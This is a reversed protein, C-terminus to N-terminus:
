YFHIPGWAMYEGKRVQMVPEVASVDHEDEGKREENRETTKARKATKDVERKPPRGRKRKM